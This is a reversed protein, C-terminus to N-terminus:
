NSKYGKATARLEALAAQGDIGKAKAAALWDTELKSVLNFYEATMEPDATVTPLNKEKILAVAEADGKDWSQGALRSLREGSVSMLAQQNEKSLRAFSDKNMLIGFSNYYMGGPIILTFPAVEYLKFSKKTEIPMVVGDAVGQALTEYVKPAPVGVGQAGLLKAVETGMGGPVRIKMGQVESLKKIPKRLQLVGQGHTTVALLVVDDHEGAKTLYKQYIRWYAVSAAEANTGLGPLDIIQQMTYRGANYAHSVWTIDTGGDAVLDPLNPPPVQPYEVKIKVEGKTAEEVWKSWTPWMVSNLPHSPPAWSAVRLTTTEAQAWGTLCLAAVSAAGLVRFLKM